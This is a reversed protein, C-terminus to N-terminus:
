PRLCGPLSSLAKMRGAFRKAYVVWSKELLAEGCDRGRAKYMMVEASGVVFSMRGEIALHGRPQRQMAAAPPLLSAVHRMSGDAAPLHLWHRHQAGPSKM